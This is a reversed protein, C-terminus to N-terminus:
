DLTGLGLDIKDLVSELTEPFAACTQQALIETTGCGNAGFPGPAMITIDSCADVKVPFNEVPTFFIM